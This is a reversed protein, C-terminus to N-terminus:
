ALYKSLNISANLDRDIENGCECKYIRERLKLNNKISGCSCCTKSSPYYRDAVVLEIGRLESKYELQKRFEFLGQKSIHKSLYRNKMMSKVDLDEVVIRKPNKKVISATTQHLYNSRINGLKRYTNKIQKEVKRINNTKQYTEGVKNMQYKRSAKRQLRKLKKEIKKVNSTKNINEYVTGDSCTALDKIGLDIGISIDELTEVPKDTAISVSLYWYKGDFSVRPNYYTTDEPIPQNTKIWGVKSILVSNGKVKLALSDNYFSCKSKKNKFKPKKAIKKFYRDYAKCADKVAQKAVNNSVENLWSLEDKKLQTIEKRIKGEPIFKNGEKYNQEQKILVWNYIYHSIEVSRFLVKEQQKTPFLRVKKGLIM